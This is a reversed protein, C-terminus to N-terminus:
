KKVYWYVHVIYMNMYVIYQIKGFIQEHVHILIININVDAMSTCYKCNM